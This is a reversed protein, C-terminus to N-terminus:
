PEYITADFQSLTGNTACMSEDTLKNEIRLKNNIAIAAGM